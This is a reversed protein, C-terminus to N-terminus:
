RGLTIRISVYILLTLVLVNFVVWVVIYPTFANNELIMNLLQKTLSEETDDDSM